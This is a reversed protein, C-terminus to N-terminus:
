EHKYIHIYKPMYTTHLHIYSYVYTYKYMSVSEKEYLSIHTFMHIIDSCVYM